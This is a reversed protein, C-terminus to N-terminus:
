GKPFSDPFYPKLEPQSVVRHYQAKVGIEDYHPPNCFRVKQMKLFKKRGTLVEKLYDKTVM